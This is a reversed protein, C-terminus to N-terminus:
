FHGRIGLHNGDNWISIPKPGSQMSWLSTRLGILSLGWYVDAVLAFNKQAKVTSEEPVLCLYQGDNSGNTAM